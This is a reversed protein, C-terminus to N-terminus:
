INLKTKGMCRCLNIFASIHAKSHITTEKKGRKAGKGEKGIRHLRTLGGGGHWCGPRYSGIYTKGQSLFWVEYYSLDHNVINNPILNTELTKIGLAILCYVGQCILGQKHSHQKSLSAPSPNNTLISEWAKCSWLWAHFFAKGQGRHFPCWPEKGKALTFLKCTCRTM